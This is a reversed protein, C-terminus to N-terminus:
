LGIVRGIATGTLMSAINLTLIGAPTKHLDPQKEPEAEHHAQTENSIDYGNICETARFREVHLDINGRVLLGTGCREASCDILTITM